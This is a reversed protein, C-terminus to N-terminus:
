FFWRKGYGVPTETPKISTIVPVAETSSAKSESVDVIYHVIVFNAKRAAGTVAHRKKDVWVITGSEAASNRALEYLM